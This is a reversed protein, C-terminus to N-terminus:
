LDGEAKTIVQRATEIIHWLADVMTSENQDQNWYEAIHEFIEVMKNHQEQLKSIKSDAENAVYIVEELRIYKYNQGGISENRTPIQLILNLIDNM